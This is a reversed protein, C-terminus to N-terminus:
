YFFKACFFIHISWNFLPITKPLPNIQVNIFLKIPSNFLQIYIYIYIYTILVVITGYNM